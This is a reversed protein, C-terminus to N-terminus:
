NPKLYLCFGRCFLNIQEASACGYIHRTLSLYVCFGLAICVQKCNCHIHGDPWIYAFKRLLRPRVFSIERRYFTQRRLGVSRYVETNASKCDKVGGSRIFFGTRRNNCFHGPLPGYPLNQQLAQVCTLTRSVVQPCVSNAFIEYGVMQAFVGCLTKEYTLVPPM